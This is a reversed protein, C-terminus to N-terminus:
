FVVLSAAEDKIDHWVAELEKVLEAPLEGQNRAAVYKELQTANSPGIIVADGKQGPFAAHFLLWRVAADATSIGHPECAKAIKRMAEHMAPKDFWNRYMMGGYNTPSVEFRTGKLDENGKSFTLKGTLFGGGLPSYAVFAIGHKQLLPFLTSEYIRCLLNYQGQFVSPKIYDKEEAIALWEELM